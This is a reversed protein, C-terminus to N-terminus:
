TKQTLTIVLLWLQPCIQCTEKICQSATSCNEKQKRNGLIYPKLKWDSDQACWILSCYRKLCCISWSVYRGHCTSSIPPHYRGCLDIMQGFAVSPYSWLFFAKLIGLGIPYHILYWCLKITHWWKGWLCFVTHTYRYLGHEFVCYNHNTICGMTDGM